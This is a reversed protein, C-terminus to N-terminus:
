GGFVSDFDVRPFLELAGGATANHIRRGDAEFMVKALQYNNLVRELKPDKWTKGKGFYDPHFHNPDDTTSTILDGEVEASDPITYSFDMGILYVDSFGMWYALQLNIITVSQGCFVRQSADTSFRPTCFNPSNKAYFGRNMTFFTVNDEGTEGYLERYITPFFKHGARFERIRDLNENIVSSDEVVYYSPPFNMSEAYFIGNVAITYENRLKTLDLKNLSPGNGVIVCREGVHRNRFALMEESDPTRDAYEEVVSLGARGGDGVHVLRRPSTSSPTPEGGVDHARAEDLRNVEVGPVEVIGVGSEAAARVIADISAPWPWQVVLRGVGGTRLALDNETIVAFAEADLSDTAPAIDPSRRADLVAVRGAEAGATELLAATQAPNSPAVVVDWVPFPADITIDAAPSAASVRADIASRVADRREDPADPLSEFTDGDLGLGRRLGRDIVDDVDVHRRILPWHSFDIMDLARELQEHDDALSAIASYQVGRRAFQIAQSYTVLPEHLVRTGSGVRQGDDLPENVSALLREAERVHESPMSRVMSRQKQRYAALISGTGVFWYGHRMLRLWLDWDEAGHLMTEDFGGFSRLVSTRLLPAHCNFPCEGGSSVLDHFEPGEWRTRPDLDDLQADEPLQVIGSYSGAVMPDNAHELATVLRDALNETSFFDDSDLFTVFPASALRLGTNRSASLGGNVAHRVLRFREKNGIFGAIRAVSDDTSADDVVICEWGGFTQADVSRLTDVVFSADNFNPVVVTVLPADDGNSVHVNSPDAAAARALRRVRHNADRAARAPEPPPRMWRQREALAEQRERLWKVRARLTPLKTLRKQHQALRDSHGDSVKALHGVGAEAAQLRTEAHAVQQELSRLSTATLTYIVLLPLVASLGVLPAWWADVYVGILALIASVALAGLRWSLWFRGLRRVANRVRTQM